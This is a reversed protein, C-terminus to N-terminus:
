CGQNLVFNFCFEIPLGTPGNEDFIHYTVKVNKNILVSYDIVGGTFDVESAIFRVDELRVLARVRLTGDGIQERIEIEIFQISMGNAVAEMLLPTSAELPTLIRFPEIMAPGGVGGGGVTAVSIKGGELGLVPVFGGMLPEPGGIPESEGNIGPVKLIAIRNHAQTPGSDGIANFIQDLTVMTPGVAGPPPNLSGAHSVSATSLTLALIAATITILQRM